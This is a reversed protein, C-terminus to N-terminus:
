FGTNWIRGQLVTIGVKQINSVNRNTGLIKRMVLGIRSKGRRRKKLYDIVETGQQIPNHLIGYIGALYSYGRGGVTRFSIEVM